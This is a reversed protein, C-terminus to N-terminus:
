EGLVRSHAATCFRYPFPTGMPHGMVWSGGAVYLIVKETPHALEDGKPAKGNTEYTIFGPVEVPEVIGKGVAAVGTIWQGPVPPIRICKVQTEQGILKEILPKNKWQKSDPRPLSFRESWSLYLRGAGIGLDRSLSWSPHPRLGPMIHRLTRYLLFPPLFVSFIVLGVLKYFFFAPASPANPVPRSHGPMTTPLM